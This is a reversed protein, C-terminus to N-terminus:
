ITVKVNEANEEADFNQKYAKVLAEELAAVLYDKSIGREKELEDMVAIIEKVDINKMKEVM